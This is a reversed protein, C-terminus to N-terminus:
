SVIDSLFNGWPMVGSPSLLKVKLHWGPTDQKVTQQL